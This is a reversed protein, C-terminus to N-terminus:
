RNKFDYLELKERTKEIDGYGAYKQVTYWFSTPGCYSYENTLDYANCEPYFPPKSRACPRAHHNLLVSVIKHRGYWAAWMLPTLKYTKDRLNINATNEILTKVLQIDGIRVAYTLPTMNYTNILHIRIAQHQDISEQELFGAQILKEKEQTPLDRLLM